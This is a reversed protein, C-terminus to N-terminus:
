IGEDAGVDDGTMRGAVGDPKEPREPGGGSREPGEEYREGPGETDARRM